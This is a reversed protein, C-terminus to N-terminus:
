RSFTVHLIIVILCSLFPSSVWLQDFWFLRSYFFARFLFKFSFSGEGDDILFLGYIIFSCAKKPPAQTQALAHVSHNTLETARWSPHFGGCTKVRRASPWIPPTAAFPFPPFSLPTFKRATSFLLTPVPSSAWVWLATRADIEVRFIDIHWIAGFEFRCKQEFFVTKRGGGGM